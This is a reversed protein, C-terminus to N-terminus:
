ICCVKGDNSSISSRYSIVGVLLPMSTIIVSRLVLLTIVLSLICISYSGGLGSYIFANYCYTSAPAWFLIDYSSRMKMDSFIAEEAFSGSSGIISSSLSSSSSSSLQNYNNKLKHYIYLLLM